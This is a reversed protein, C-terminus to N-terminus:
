LKRFSAGLGTAPAENETPENEEHLTSMLTFSPSKRKPRILKSLYDLAVNVDCGEQKKKFFYGYLEFQYFKNLCNEIFHKDFKTITNLVDIKDQQIMRLLYTGNEENKHASFGMESLISPLTIPSYSFLIKLHQIRKDPILDFITNISRIICPLSILFKLQEHDNAYHSLFKQLVATGNKKLLKSEETKISFYNIAYHSLGTDTFCYKDDEHFVEGFLAILFNNYQNRLESDKLEFHDLPNVTGALKVYYKIVCLRKPEDFYNCAALLLCIASEVNNIKSPINDLGYNSTLAVHFPIELDLMFKRFDEINPSSQLRTKISEFLTVSTHM